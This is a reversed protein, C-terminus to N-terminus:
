KGFLEIIEVIEGGVRKQAESTQAGIHPTCSVHPHSYLAHNKAPEEAFVDLGAGRLKGSNLADLLAQEDVNNGRSTNVLVAGDKMKAITEANILPKGDLSPTHLSIFDSNALLEDLECYHFTECELGPAHYIDCALVKMGLAQAKAALMQGIRGCGIIGLTRGALEIGKYENKDWRDERMSHGAMSIFRAVSFMHALALEAVTNSSARPTNKVQIGNQEAYEVDINDVGVGGRIVLKLRGTEKAADIIPKRVKTASRVVLADFEKVQKALEAPEYFQEVVEHGKAKLAAVASKDLGDTALIRM